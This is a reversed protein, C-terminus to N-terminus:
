HALMSNHVIKEIKKCTKKKETDKNKNKREQKLNHTQIM